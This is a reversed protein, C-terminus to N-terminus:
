IKNEFKFTYTKTKLRGSSTSGTMPTGGTIIGNLFTTTKGDPYTVILTISDETAIKMRGARNSELLQSLNKDDEQNPFVSLSLEIPQAQTWSMLDGNLGMAADAIQLDQVEVPDSDDPFQTIDFGKPFAPLAVIRVQLGFGSIFAM